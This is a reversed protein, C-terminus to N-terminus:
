WLAVLEQAVMERDARLSSEVCARLRRRSLSCSM